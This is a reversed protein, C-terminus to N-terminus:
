RIGYEKEIQRENQISRTIRRRKVEDPEHPMQYIGRLMIECRQKRFGNKYKKKDHLISKMTTPAVGAHRALEDVSWGRERRIRQLVERVKVIPIYNDPNWRKPNASKFGYHGNLYTQIDGKSSFNVFNGCGCKCLPREGHEDLYAKIKRERYRQRALANAAQRKETEEATEKAMRALRNANVSKKNKAYWANNQKRIRDRNAANWKNQRARMCARCAYQLRGTDSRVSFMDEPLALECKTCTRLDTM